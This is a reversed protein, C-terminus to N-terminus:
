QVVFVIPLSYPVIITKGRQYGPTLKPILGIVRMAENELNPHPAKVEIDKIIGLKDIKFKVFIRQKGQLGVNSAINSNFNKLILESIKQSMCNKRAKNGYIDECGKYVPVHEFRGDPVETPKLVIKSNNTLGDKFKIKTKKKGDKTFQTWTKELKGQDYSGEWELDGDVSYRKETGEKKDNKNKGETRLMGNEYYQKYVGDRYGDKYTVMWETTGDAYLRKWEGSLEYDKYSAEVELTGDELYGKYYGEKLKNESRINGSEYYFKRVYIGEIKEVESKITGDKYYSIYEEDRKGNTYSYLSSVQGTKYYSKWKGVRKGNTYQGEAKLIETDEYYEKFPGNNQAVGLQFSLLFLVFSLILKM